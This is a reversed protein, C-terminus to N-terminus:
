RLQQKSTESDLNSRRHNAVVHSKSTAAMAKSAAAIERPVVHAELPLSGGRDLAPTGSIRPVPLVPYSAWCQSETVAVLAANHILNGLITADIATTAM